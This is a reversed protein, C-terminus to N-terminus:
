LSQLRIELTLSQKQLSDLESLFSLSGADNGSRDGQPAPTQEQNGAAQAFLYAGSCTAAILAIAIKKVM